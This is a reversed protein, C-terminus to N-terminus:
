MRTTTPPVAGIEDWADQAVIRECRRVNAAAGEAYPDHGGFHARLFRAADGLEGALRPAVVHAHFAPTQAVLDRADRFPLPGGGAVLEGYLHHFCREVYLPDAVQCVLDATGLMRGLTASADDKAELLSRPSSALRTCLMLPALEACHALPTTALYEAALAASRAEHTAALQPGALHAEDARRLFGSDHLLALVVAALGHEATFGQALGSDRCHGAVLRATALAADLSHRLDHYPLDCALWGPERGDFLRQAFAFAEHLTARDVNAAGFAAALLAAVAPVTGEAADLRVRGTVDRLGATVDRPGTM